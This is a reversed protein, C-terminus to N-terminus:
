KRNKLIGARKRTIKQKEKNRFNDDSIEFRHEGYIKFNYLSEYSMEYMLGLVSM